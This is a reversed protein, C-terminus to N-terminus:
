EQYQQMDETQVKKSKRGRCSPGSFEIELTGRSAPKLFICSAKFPYFCILFKMVKRVASSLCGEIKLHGLAKM